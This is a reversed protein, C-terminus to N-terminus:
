KINIIDPTKKICSNQKVNTKNSLVSGLIIMKARIIAGRAQISVDKVIGSIAMFNTVHTKSLAQETLRTNTTVSLNKAKM